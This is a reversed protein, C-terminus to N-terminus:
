AKAPIWRAFANRFIERANGEVPDGHAVLIREFPWELVRELFTGVALTDRLLAFRAMRSPGFERPVGFTRWFFREWGSEHSRMHFALDTLVLTASPVHFLAVEAFAGPPSLAATDIIGQWDPPNAHPLIRATPMTGVREPLGPAAYVEIGPFAEVFAAAFLHHFSNPAVVAGVDGLAAIQMRTDDDIRPPSVVVLKGAPGAILTTRSPLVVGGPMRLRRDLSWLGPALARPPPRFSEDPSPSATQLVRDLIASSTPM